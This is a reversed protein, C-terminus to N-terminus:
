QVRALAATFLRMCTRRESATVKVGATRDHNTAVTDGADAYTAVQGATVMVVAATCSPHDALYYALGDTDARIGALQLVESEDWVHAHTPATSPPATATGTQSTGCAALTLTLVAPLTLHSVTLM